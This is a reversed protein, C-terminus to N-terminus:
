CNIVDYRWFSKIIGNQSVLLLCFASDPMERLKNIRRNKVSWCQQKGTVEAFNKLAGIKYFM